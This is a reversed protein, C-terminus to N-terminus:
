DCAVAIALAACVEHMRAPSLQGMRRTLQNTAVDTVADLQVVSPKTVPDSDPELIVESPLGRLRTSCFDVMTLRRGRIAPVRSLIM